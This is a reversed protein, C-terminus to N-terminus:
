LTRCLSQRSLTFDSSFQQDEPSKSRAQSATLVINKLTWYKEWTLFTWGKYQASVFTKSVSWKVRASLLDVCKCRSLKLTDSSKLAALLHQWSHFSLLSELCSNPCGQIVQHFKIIELERKWFCQTRNCSWYSCLKKQTKHSFYRKSHQALLSCYPTRKKRTAAAKRSIVNRAFIANTGPVKFICHFYDFSSGKPKSEFLSLHLLHVIIQPRFSISTSTKMIGTRTVITRVLACHPSVLECPRKHREPLNWEQKYGSLVDAYKLNTFIGKDM